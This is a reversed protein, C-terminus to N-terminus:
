CGEQFGSADQGVLELVEFPQKENNVHVSEASVEAVHLVGPFSRRVFNEAWEPWNPRGPRKPRKPWLPHGYLSDSVVKALM